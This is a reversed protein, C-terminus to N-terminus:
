RAPPPLMLGAFAGTEETEAVEEAEGVMEGARRVPRRALRGRVTRSARRRESSSRDCRVKVQPETPTERNMAAQDILRDWERIDAPSTVSSPRQAPLM